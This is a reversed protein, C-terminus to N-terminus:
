RIIDASRSLSCTNQPYKSVRIGFYFDDFNALRHDAPVTGNTKTSRGVQGNGAALCVQPAAL